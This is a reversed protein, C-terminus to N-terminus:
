KNADKLLESMLENTQEDEKEEEGSVVGIRLIKKRFITGTKELRMNQRRRLRESFYTQENRDDESPLALLGQKRLFSRINRFSRCSAVGRRFLFLLFM